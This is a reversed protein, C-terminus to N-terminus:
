ENPACVRDAEPGPDVDPLKLLDLHGRQWAEVRDVLLRIGETQAVGVRYQGCLRLYYHLLPVLLVDKALFVIADEETYHVHGGEPTRKGTAFAMFSFKRDLREM